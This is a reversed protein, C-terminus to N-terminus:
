RRPLSRKPDECAVGSIHDQNWATEAPARRDHSTEAIQWAQELLARVEPKDFSQQVALIALRNLTMSGLGPLQYQQAYALLEEYAKQAQQWAHQFAYARGLSVYLHEIEPDPLVSQMRPKHEKLLSRAKDYPRIADEVAFVALAEDGAQGSYGAAVETDGSAM